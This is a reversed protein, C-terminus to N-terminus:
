GVKVELDLAPRVLKLATESDNLMSMDYIPQHVVARAERMALPSRTLQGSVGLVPINNLKRLSEVGAAAGMADGAAFILGNLLSAFRPASLLAATEQQYLGDALEIVIADVRAELAHSILNFAAREVEHPPVHYTSPLGADTFDLVPAGGADIAAWIDGGAGTGTVKLVAVNLHAQTLGKVLNIVTETKGANMATGAVAIIPVTPTHWPLQPLAFDALNVVRGEEDGVLGIAELRTAEGVKNSRHHVQAAIGGGAVLHCAGLTPPILAEFQDPAYRNGYVVLVLDDLFLRSRRGNVLQLNKHHGLRTVRAMVVDGMGPSVDHQILTRLTRPPVRRMTFATKSKGLEKPSLRSLTM